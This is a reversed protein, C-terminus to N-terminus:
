PAKRLAHMRAELPKALGSMQQIEPVIDRVPTGHWLNAALQHGRQRKGLVRFVERDAILQAGNAVLQSYNPYSFNATPSISSVTELFCATASLIRDIYFVLM